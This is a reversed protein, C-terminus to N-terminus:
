AGPRGVECSGLGRAQLSECFLGVDENRFDSDILEGPIMGEDWRTTVLVFSDPQDDQFIEVVAHTQHIYLDRLDKRCRLRAGNGIDCQYGAEMFFANATSM